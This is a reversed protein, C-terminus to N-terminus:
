GQAAEKLPMAGFLDRHLSKFESSLRMTERMWEKDEATIEEQNDALWVLQSYDDLFRPREKKAPPITVAKPTESKEGEGWGREGMPSPSQEGGGTPSPGPTLTEAEEFLEDLTKPRPRAAEEKLILDGQREAERDQDQRPKKAEDEALAAEGREIERLNIAHLVEGELTAALELRATEQKDALRNVAQEVRKEKLQQILAKDFGDRKNAEFLATALPKGQMDRVWVQKADAFDFLVRVGKGNWDELERAFYTNNFVTVQGRQVTRMVEPRFVDEAEQATLKMVSDPGLKEMYAEAPALGRLEKHKHEFNYEKVCEAVDDIFQLWSPVYDPVQNKSRASNIDRVVKKLTDPDVDKGQFTPYTKALRILTPKWYREIIGRGQPNGPIGTEHRVGFRPLIGVIDADLFKATQGSGNDSYYILPRGHGVMGKGIAEAVALCNEALSVAWGVIFRSGADIVFTVEPAFPRGHDPHCVKAKFTHGDGVWVDNAQLGSWDRKIYPLLAKLAAGSNRRRERVRLPLKGLWRRAQDYGPIDGAQWGARELDKRVQRVVEALDPKAPNQWRSLVAAAWPVTHWDTALSRGDILYKMPDGEAVGRDWQGAWRELSRYSAGTKKQGRSVNRWLAQLDASAEGADLTQALRLSAERDSLGLEGGLHRMAQVLGAKATGRQRDVDRQQSKPLLKKHSM